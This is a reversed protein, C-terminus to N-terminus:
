GFVAKLLFLNIVFVTVAVLVGTGLRVALAHRYIHGDVALSWLFLGLYTVALGAQPQEPDIWSLVGISLLGFLFGTGALAGLTQPMRAAHGRLNLLAAAVVFQLSIALLTRGGYDDENLVGGAVFGSGVYLMALLLALGMSAPLDQPGSRLRMMEVLPLLQRLM